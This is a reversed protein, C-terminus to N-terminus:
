EVGWVKDLRALEQESIVRDGNVEPDEPLSEVAVPATIANLAPAVLTGEGSVLGPLEAFLIVASPSNNTLLSAMSSSGSTSFLISFDAADVDGDGDADGEFRSACGALGYNQVVLDWDFM